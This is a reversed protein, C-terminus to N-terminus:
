YGGKSPSEVDILGEAQMMDEMVTIESSIDIADGEYLNDLQSNFAQTICNMMKEIREMSNQVNEVKISQKELESYQNLLKITTPFYYNMFKRISGVSGPRNKIEVLIQSAVEEIEDIQSSIKEHQIKKNVEKLEDLLRIGEEVALKVAESAYEEEKIVEVVEEKAPFLKTGVFGGLCALGACLFLSSLKYMPFLFSAVIWTLGAIYYPYVSPTKIVKTEKLNDKGM